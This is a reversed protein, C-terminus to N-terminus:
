LTQPDNQSDTAFVTISWSPASKRHAKWFDYLRGMDWNTIRLTGWHTKLRDFLMENYYAIMQKKTIQNEILPYFDRGHIALGNKGIDKLQSSIFPSNPKFRLTGSKKFTSSPWQEQPLPGSLSYSGEPVGKKSLNKLFISDLNGKAEIGLFCLQKIGYADTTLSIFGPFQIDGSLRIHIEGAHINTHIVLSLAMVLISVWFILKTNYPFIKFIM